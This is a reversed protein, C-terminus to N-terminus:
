QQFILKLSQVYNEIFHNTIFNKPNNRLAFKMRDKWSKEFVINQNNLWVENGVHNYFFPPTFPVLDSKNVIRITEQNLENFCKKFKKLGVAPCGFVIIRTKNSIFYDNFHSHIKTFFLLALAGGLSHGTIIVKRNQLLDLDKIHKYIADLSILNTTKDTFYLANQFGAHVLIRNNSDHDKIKKPFMKINSIVWDISERTGRFAFILTSDNWFIRCFGRGFSGHVIKQSHLPLNKYKLKKNNIPGSYVSKCIKALELAESIDLTERM